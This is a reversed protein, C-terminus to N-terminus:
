LLQELLYSISGLILCLWFLIGAGERSLSHLYALLCVGFLVQSLHDMM